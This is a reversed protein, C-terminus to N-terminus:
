LPVKTGHKQTWWSVRDSVPNAPVDVTMMRPLTKRSRRHRTVTRKKLDLHGNVCEKSGWAADAAAEWMATVDVVMEPEYFLRCDAKEYVFQSPLGDELNDPLINDRVNISTDTSRNTPLTSLETLASWNASHQQGPTASEIALQALSYIYGFAFNNSGKIGGIGQMPDTSPRGGIAISKVGGQLRMFESFLTCTSACYGDYLMVIDEAAFPQTFNRRSGYGTIDMGMGYTENITTLPDDLDWRIISTYPDGNYEHPGFKEESSTFHRGQLNVDYRYNPPSEFMQIEADTATEPNYDKLASEFQEAMAALAETYRFRTYGDQVISPFLQRFTDYGQLIYGGGNGSLDIVLKKKGAAKAQRLFTEVVKQFEAPTSPEFSLMSLVAVESNRDSDLFYGSVVNDSSIVEPDPYGPAPTAIATASPTALASTSSSAASAATSTPGTCFKQYMSEGDTVGTFDGKVQATTRYVRSTGNAFGITTKAGPWLYGFRASGSFYGEFDPTSAAFPKSFFLSNYLADPDNLSGLQSWDELYKVADGGNITKVPSPDFGNEVKEVIDSHVFIEPTKKGDLSVSVLGVNRHFTLAKTLLDPFFRFHGDHALNFAKFLDAQFDYEGKYADSKVKDNVKDLEAWIDVAPELYASPPNKIYSTDSQWEVYPFISEMLQIAENKGLPVSKLCALALEGDVVPTASPSAALTKAARSSIQACATGTGNTPAQRRFNGAVAGTALSSVVLLNQLHM